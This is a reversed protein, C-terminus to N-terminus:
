PKRFHTRRGPVSASGPNRRRAASSTLPNQIAIPPSHENRGRTYSSLLWEGYIVSPGTCGTIIPHFVKECGVIVVRYVDREKKGTIREALTMTSEHRHSRHPYDSRDTVM